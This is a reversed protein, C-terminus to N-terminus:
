WLLFQGGVLTWLGSGLPGVGMALACSWGVVIVGAAAGTWSPCCLAVKGQLGPGGAPRWRGWGWVAARAGPRWARAGKRPLRWAGRCRRRRQCCARGMLWSLMLLMSRLVVLMLLLLPMLLLWPWM